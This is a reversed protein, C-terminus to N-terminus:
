LQINNGKKKLFFKVAFALVILGLIGAIVVIANSITLNTGALAALGGAQVTFTIQTTKLAQGNVLATTETLYNGLPQGATQWEILPMEKHEGAKVADVGDPYPFVVNFIVKNASDFVKLQVEPKVAINSKNNYILKIQAPAGSNVAYSVPIASFEVDIVEKDSVTISVSRSIKTSVTASANSTNKEPIILVDLTGKYTGNPLDAPIRFVANVDHYFVPAIEVETIPASMDDLNYFTTWDKIDGEARVQFVIKANESNILSMKKVIEQGRLADTVVIPETIQGIASSILPFALLAFVALIASVFTKKAM